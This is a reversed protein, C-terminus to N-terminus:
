VIYIYTYILHLCMYLCMNLLHINWVKERQKSSTRNVGSSHAFVKVMLWECISNVEKLVCQWVAIGQSDLPKLVFSIVITLYQISVDRASFKTEKQKQPPLAKSWFEFSFVQTLGLWRPLALHPQLGCPTQLKRGVRLGHQTAPHLRSISVTHRRVILMPGLWSHWSATSTPWSLLMNTSHLVFSGVVNWGKLQCAFRVPKKPKKWGQSFGNSSKPTKKPFEM